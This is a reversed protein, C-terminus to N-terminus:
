KKDEIKNDSELARKATQELVYQKGDRGYRAELVAGRYRQARTMMYPTKDIEAWPTDKPCLEEEIGYYAIANFLKRPPRYIYDYLFERMPEPVYSMWIETWDLITWTFFAMTLFLVVPQTIGLPAREASYRKKAHGYRYDRRTLYRRQEHNILITPRNQAPNLALYKDKESSSLYNEIHEELVKPVIFAGLCTQRNEIIAAALTQGDYLQSDIMHGRRMGVRITIYDRYHSIRSVQRWDRLSPLKIEIRHADFEHNLMSDLSCHVLRVPLELKEYMKWVMDKVKQYEKMSYSEISSNLILAHATESQSVLKEDGDFWDTGQRYCSGTTYFRQPEDSKVHGLSTMFGVLSERSAESLHLTTPSPSNSLIRCPDNTYSKHEESNAAEVLASKVLCLGSLPVFNNEDLEKSFYDVLSLQLKAGIGFYYHSNPGVVSKSYCNNIYSLKRHSLIKTLNQRQQFDSDKESIIEDCEPVIKSSRNPIRVVTPMIREELEHVKQQVEHLRADDEQNTLRDLEDKLRLLKKCNDKVLELRQHSLYDSKRKCRLEIHRELDHINATIRKYYEKNYRPKFVQHVNPFKKGNVVLSSYFQNM